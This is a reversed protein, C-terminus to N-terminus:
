HSTKGEMGRAASTTDEDQSAFFIHYNVIDQIKTELRRGRNLKKGKGLVDRYQADTWRNGKISHQKLTLIHIQVLIELLSKNSVRQLNGHSLTAQLQSRPSAASAVLPRGGDMVEM